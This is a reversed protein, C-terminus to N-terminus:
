VGRGGLVHPVTRLLIKVDQWLSWNAVYLYDISLMEELPVRTAPLLQWPGTMGPTLDLRSRLIGEILADEEAILPRSGVLSMQGALVNLIQPLEDLSTRRLMRGVRTVRPDAALKFLGESENAERLADKRGEADVVMSRFKLIRFPVGERGIRTQRFFVPGRSDLRILVAIGVLVPLLLAFSVAGLVMDFLRKALRDSRSLGFRRVGLMMMGNIQEFEVASGVADLMQPLVSVRVGAVKALRVLHVTDSVDTGSPAVIVRHVDLREVLRRMQRITMLEEAHPQNLPVSGVVDAHGVARRVNDAVRGLQDRSGFLLCRVPPAIANALARAATRCAWILAATLLWLAVLHAPSPRLGLVTGAVAGALLAYVSATLLLLPLEDLTSRRLVLDDRDYLGTVQNIGILVVPMALLAFIAPHTGAWAIMAVSTLLAAVTDAVVLAGRVTAERARLPPRERRADEQLPSATRAVAAGIDEAPAEIVDLTSVRTV